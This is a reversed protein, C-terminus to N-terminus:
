ENSFGWAGFICAGVLNCLGLIISETEVGHNVALIFAGFNFIAVAIFPRNIKM